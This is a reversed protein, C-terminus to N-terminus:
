GAATGSYPLQLIGFFDQVAIGPSQDAIIKGFSHPPIASLVPRTNLPPRVQIRDTQLSEKSNIEFLEWAIIHGVFYNFQGNVGDLIGRFHLIVM